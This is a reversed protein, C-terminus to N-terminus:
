LIALDLSDQDPTVKIEEVEDSFLIKEDDSLIYEPNEKGIKDGKSLDDYMFIHHESLHIEFDHSTKFVDECIECTYRSPKHIDCHKEFKTKTYFRKPCVTCNYSIRGNEKAHVNYHARLSKSDAAAYKCVECKYPREGTHKRTHKKVDTIYASKYSCHQCSFFKEQSHKLYHRKMKWAQGEELQCVLCIFKLRAPDSVGSCIHEFM